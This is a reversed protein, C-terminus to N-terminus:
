YKKKNNKAESQVSKDNLLLQHEVSVFSDKKTELISNQQHHVQVITPYKEQIKKV